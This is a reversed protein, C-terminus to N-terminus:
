NIVIRFTQIVSGYQTISVQYVGPSLGSANVEQLGSSSISNQLVEQGMSNSISYSLGDM